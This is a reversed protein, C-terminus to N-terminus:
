LNHSTNRLIVFIYFIKKKYQVCVYVVLRLLSSKLSMQVDKPIVNNLLLVLPFLCLWGSVPLAKLEDTILIEMVCIDLFYVSFLM